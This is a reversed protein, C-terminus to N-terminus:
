FGRTTIQNLNLMFNGTAPTLSQVIIEVNYADPIIADFNVGAANPLGLSPISISRRNGVHSINISKIYCFPLDQDGPIVCRYIKPPRITTQNLRYPLNQFILLYLFYFHRIYDDGNITNVLDFNFKYSPADDGYNYFQPQEVFAGPSTAMFTGIAVDIANKGAELLSKYNNGILSSDRGDSFTTSINKVQNDFYPLIYTFGTRERIYLHNYPSLPSNKQFEGNNLIQSLDNFGQSLYNAGQSLFNAARPFNRGAANGGDALANTTNNFIKNKAISDTLKDVGLTKLFEAAKTYIVGGAGRVADRTINIYVLLQAIYSNYKMDYEVLFAYPIKNQLYRTIPTSTITCQSIVDIIGRPTKPRAIYNPISTTLTNRISNEIKEMTSPTRKEPKIQLSFFPNESM